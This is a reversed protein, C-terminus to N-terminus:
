FQRSAQDLSSSVRTLKKAYSSDNSKRLGLLDQRGMKGLVALPGVTLHYVVSLLIATQVKGLVHVFAM